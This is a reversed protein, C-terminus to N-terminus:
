GRLNYGLGSTTSIFTYYYGANLHQVTNILQKYVLTGVRNFISYKVPSTM